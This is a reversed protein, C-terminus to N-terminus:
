TRIAYPQDDTGHVVELPRLAGPVNMGVLVGVQATSWVLPLDSLHPWKQIQDRLPIDGRDVPLDKYALAAPLTITHDNELDSLKLGHVVRATIQNNRQAMSTLSVKKPQGKVGLKGVLDDKIFTDTGYPDLAAYTVIDQGSNQGRIKVPVVAVVINSHGPAIEPVKQVQAGRVNAKLEIDNSLGDPRTNWYQHLVTPHGLKCTACTRRQRCAQVFRGYELCGFRRERLVDRREEVKMALALSCEDVDHQKGCFPCEVGLKRPEAPIPNSSTALNLNRTSQHNWENAVARIFNALDHFSVEQRLDQEISMVKHSWKAGMNWRWCHQPRTSFVDSPSIYICPSILEYAQGATCQLLYQLRDDPSKSKKEIQFCFSCMFTRYETLKGDFVRLDRKSLSAEVQARLVNELIKTM